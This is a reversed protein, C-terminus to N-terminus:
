MAIMGLDKKKIGKGGASFQAVAGVPTSKSSQGGTNSYVETDFVLVNVDEGSALVHDLGGFGIDYAWGDGGFIWQSKKILFEKKDLIEDILKQVETNSTKYGELQSILEKSATKTVESNYMNEVWSKLVTKINKPIDSGITSECLEKLKNRIQKVALYMGYGYEANDEFLSNAWAPGLGKKNM